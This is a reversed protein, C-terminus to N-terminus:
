LMRQDARVGASSSRCAHAFQRRTLLLPYGACASSALMTLRPCQYCCMCVAGIVAPGTNTHCVRLCRWWSLLRGALDAGIVVEKRLPLTSAYVRSGETCGREPRWPASRRAVAALAPAATGRAGTDAALHWAIGPTRCRPARVQPLAHEREWWEDEDTEVLGFDVGPFQARTAALPRRRDCRNPGAAPRLPAHPQVGLRRM